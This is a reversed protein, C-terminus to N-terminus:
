APSSFSTRTTGTVRGGKGAIINHENWGQPLDYLWEAQFYVDGHDNELVAVYMDHPGRLLEVVHDASWGDYGSPREHPLRPKPLRRAGSTSSRGATATATYRPGGPPQPLPIHSCRTAGASSGAGASNLPMVSCLDPRSSRPSPFSTSRVASSVSILRDEENKRRTRLASLLRAAPRATM